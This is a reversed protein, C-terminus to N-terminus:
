GRDAPFAPRLGRHNQRAGHCPAPEAPLKANEGMESLAEAAARAINMSPNKTLRRLAPKTEPRKRWSSEQIINFLSSSATKSETQSILFNLIDGQLDDPLPKGDPRKSFSALGGPGPSLVAAFESINPFQDHNAGLKAAEFFLRIGRNSGRQVMPRFLFLRIGCEDATAGAAITEWDLSVRSLLKIVGEDGGSFPVDMAGGIAEAFRHEVLLAMLVAIPYHRNFWIGGM